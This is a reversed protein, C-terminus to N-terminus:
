FELGLGVGVSVASQDYAGRANVVFMDDKTRYSIGLAAAMAGGRLGTGMGFTFRGPNTSAPLMGIAIASAVGSNMDGRLSRLDYEVAVLRGDLGNLRNEINTIGASFSHQLAFLQSGNVAENSSSSITGARVGRITRTGSAGTVDISTGGTAAAVTIDQTAPDQRVIGITGNDINTTLNVLSTNVARLQRVNVADTDATGGAVNTIQRENDVSGVSVAGATSSVAVNSFLEVAGNMGSRNSVSGTGLAVGGVVLATSGSGIATSDQAEARALVGFASSNTGLAQSSLGTATSSEGSAISGVGVATSLNGSANASRGIATASNGGASSLGGIATALPGSANAAAGIAISTNGISTAGEGLAISATGSAVSSSGIALSENSSSANHGIAIDNEGIASASNGVAIASSELPDTGNGAEAGAGIAITLGDDAEALLGIAIAAIDGASAGNGIATSDPAGSSSGTGLQISQAMATQSMVGEGMALALLSYTALSIKM